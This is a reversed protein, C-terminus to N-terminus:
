YGELVTENEELKDEGKELDAFSDEEDRGQVSSFLTATETTIAKHEEVAM